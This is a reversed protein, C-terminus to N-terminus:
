DIYTEFFGVVRETVGAHRVTAIGRMQVFFPRDAREMRTVHTDTIEIEVALDRRPDEFAMGTPVRVTVGDVSLPRTGTYRLPEPRFLGRPGRDDVLYAFLTEDDTVSGRVTGYLFTATDNSAAGWEWSVDGWVGWNHDHYGSVDEVEVCEPLCLTGTVRAHLAPAVYGSILERGGLDTPPLYRRRSPVMEIDVRHDGAEAHVRYRDEVFRVSGIEGLRLDPSLTDLSVEPSPVEATVARHTGDPDRVTLLVSGGWREADAMAGGVALTLYIWRDEDVVNFYHWESWTTDRAAAGEPIHFADIEAYFEEPTPSVWRRSRESDEWEGALLEPSAGALAARSPIEGSALVTTSAGAARLELRRGDLLPSGGRIGIEERARPSEFLERQLFRAQDLGLFRSEVGGARLMETGIGAPVVILDGGGVLEGERAQSLMAEGVALLVVMVAVGLTYGSLLFLARGPRHRLEALVLRILM